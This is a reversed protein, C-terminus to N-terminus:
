FPLFNPISSPSESFSSESGSWNSSSSSSSSFSSGSSSSSSGSSSSWSSTTEVWKSTSSSSSVPGLSSPSPNFNTKYFCHDKDTVIIENRVVAQTALLRLVPGCGCGKCPWGCRAKAPSGFPFQFSIIGQTQSSYVNDYAFKLEFNIYSLYEVGLRLKGGKIDSGEDELYFYPGIGAYVDWDSSRFFKKYNTSVEADFGSLAKQRKSITAFFGGPYNFTKSSYHVRNGIPWYGNMRFEWLVGLMELGAGLQHYNAKARRYDYYLNAGFVTSLPSYEYRVGGGFNAALKGNNFVHFRGDVFPQLSLYIDRWAAPVSFLGITTYGVNYSLGKGEAHSIFTEFPYLVTDGICGNDACDVPMWPKYCGHPEINCVIHDAPPAMMVMEQAVLSVSASVLTLFLIEKVFNFGKM